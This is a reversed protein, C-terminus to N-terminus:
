LKMNSKMTTRQQSRTGAIALPGLRRAFRPIGLGTLRSNLLREIGERVLDAETTREDRAVQALESMLDDDLSITIDAM